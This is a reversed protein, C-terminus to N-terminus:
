GCVVGEIRVQVGPEPRYTFEARCTTGDTLEVTAMNSESLEDLFAQGSYGIISPQKVGDLRVAAGAKLPKGVADVFGVLAARSEQGLGFGVVVGSGQMPVVVEKTTPIDADVPLNSPDISIANPIHSHLNPVLIRGWRDTVGVPRNQYSVEVNPAGVDVVAFSDYIRQTAFVGMGAFALAGDVSATGRVDDGYQTVTTEFRAFQSRYSAAAARVPDEGEVVRARWGISGAEPREAKIVDAMLRGHGDSYDYGASAAIGSDLAISIGAYAGAGGADGFNQFLSARFTARPWIEHSYNLSLIESDYWIDHDMRTYALQLHAREYPLPVSLSVQDIARPVTAVLPRGLADEHKSTSTVSAVDDYDGFTRQIRGYLSWGKWRLELAASALAGARDEYASGAAAFSAVGYRGLLYAAGMGGSVLKEGAELHGELTLQNTLGYRGSLIAFADSAYDDSLVGYSRRPFGAEASFYFLGEQLLKDSSYFPLSTVTERGQSDKLVVRAEGQRGIIPLNVVEFPGAAVNSSWTRTNQTYVEITSPVAASGSFTPLPKTIVDPRIAFNRQVQAGGLYVPRTWSLGGSVFDGVRYTLMRRPDAYSWTSQLRVVDDAWDGTRGAIFAHNVLGYPSFLRLNFTGSATDLRGFDLDSLGGTAAFLSYNIVAGYDSRPTLLKQRNYADIRRIVRAHDTTTVYLRQSIEDVRYAVGPLVDLVIRGQQDRAEPMAILGAAELDEPAASLGGGDVENFAALVGTSIDNIIVELFLKRVEVVSQDGRARPISTMSQATATSIGAMAVLVVAVLREVVLSRFTKM